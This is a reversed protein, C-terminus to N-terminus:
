PFHFLPTFAMLNLKGLVVQRFLNRTQKVQSSRNRLLLGSSSGPTPAGKKIPEPAPNKALDVHHQGRDFEDALADKTKPPNKSSAPFYVPPQIQNRQLPPTPSTQGEHPQDPKKVAKNKGKTTGM